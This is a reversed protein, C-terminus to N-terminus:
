SALATPAQAARRARQWNLVTVHTVKVGEPAAKSGVTLALIARAQRRASRGEADWRALLETPTFVGGLLMQVGPETLAADLAEIAPSRNPKRM